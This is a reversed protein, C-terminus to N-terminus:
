GALVPGADQEAQGVWERVATQTLELDRAVQGIWRDGRQGLEVVEAKCEPTFSRRGRPKKREMIEM